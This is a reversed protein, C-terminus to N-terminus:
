RLWGVGNRDVFESRSKREPVWQRHWNLNWLEPLEVRSASSDTFLFNVAGSHRDLCVRSMENGIGLGLGLAGDDGSPPVRDEMSPFTGPWTCDAMLPVRPRDTDLRGWFFEPRNDKTWIDPVHGYIYHNIGYSGYTGDWVPGWAKRAGGYVDQTSSGAPVAAIRAAPCLRMEDVQYYNELVKMWWGTTYDSPWLSFKDQHDGGYMAYVLGWQHLNSICVTSRAREKAQGLAPLLLSALIAIIAIVVLLEILTFAARNKM